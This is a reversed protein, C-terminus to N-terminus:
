AEEAEKKMDAIIRGAAQAKENLPLDAFKRDAAQKKADGKKEPSSPADLSVDSSDEKDDDGSLEKEADEPTNNYISKQAQFHDEYQDLAETVSDVNNEVNKLADLIEAKVKPMKLARSLYKYEKTKVIKEVKKAISDEKLSKNTEGVQELLESMQSKLTENEKKLDEIESMDDEKNSTKKTEEEEEKPKGQIDNIAEGFERVSNIGAKKCIQIISLDEETLGLQNIKKTLSVVEEYRKNIKKERELLQQETM